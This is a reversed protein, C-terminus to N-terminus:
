LLAYACLGNKKVPNYVLYVFLNPMTFFNKNISIKSMKHVKPMWNKPPWNPDCGYMRNLKLTDLNSFGIRQGIQEPAIITKKTNNTFAFSSYHMLSYYDYGAGFDSYIEPSYKVFNMQAELFM